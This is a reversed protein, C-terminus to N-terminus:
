KFIKPTEPKGWIFFCGGKRSGLLKVNEVKENNSNTKRGKGCLKNGLKILFEGIKM